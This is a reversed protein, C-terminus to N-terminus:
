AGGFAQNASDIDAQDYEAIFAQADAQTAGYEQALSKILAALAQQSEQESMEQGTAADRIEIVSDLVRVAAPFIDEEPIQGGLKDDIGTILSTTAQAVATVGDAGSINQVMAQSSKDDYLISQAAAVVRDEWEGEPVNQTPAAQQPAAQPPGMPQGGPQVPPVQANTEQQVADQIMGM